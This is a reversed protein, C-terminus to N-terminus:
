KTQKAFQCRMWLPWKYFNEVVKKLFYAVLGYVRIGGISLIAYHGGMAIALGLIKIEAPLTKKGDLLLIINKAACQGSKIAAQATHPIHNGELDTIDAADGIAFVGNKGPIQLDPNVIIQGIKNHEIEMGKIMRTAMIGGTFIMFDFNIMEGNELVAKHPEVKTIHEGCHLIVGLTELYHTAKEVIKPHMGKLITSSGSILHINLKDCSLTNSKYYRNFYHQMAAAIEVGSLGGGGIVVSYHEKAHKDNELRVFLEKEFFQKMRFAGRLNKIGYSCNQLGEISEMFRTVSGTAIILYDYAIEQKEDIHICKRELDISSVGTHLFSVHEGYSQCLTQLNVLTKDFPIRGAILSYGETQLFHYPHRDILLIEIDRREALKQLAAVGGYGGGVIVVKKMM